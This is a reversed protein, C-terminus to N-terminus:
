IGMLQEFDGSQISKEIARLLESKIEDDNTSLLDGTSGQPTWIYASMEVSACGFSYQDQCSVKQLSDVNVSLSIDCGGFLANKPDKPGMDEFPIQNNEQPDKDPPSAARENVISGNMANGGAREPSNIETHYRRPWTAAGSKAGLEKERTENEHGDKVAVLSLIDEEEISTSASCGLIQRIISETAIVILQKLMARQRIRGVVGNEDSFPGTRGNRKSHFFSHTVNTIAFTYHLEVDAPSEESGIADANHGNQGM